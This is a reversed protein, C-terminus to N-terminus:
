VLGSIFERLRDSVYVEIDSFEVIEVISGIYTLALMRVTTAITVYTLYRRFPFKSVGAAMSLADGGAFPVLNTLVLLFVGIRTAFIRDILRGIVGRFIQGRSVVGFAYATAGGLGGAIGTILGLFFWDLSHAMQMVLIIGPSPFIITASSILSIFFAGLYGWGGLEDAYGLFFGGSILVTAVLIGGLAIRARINLVLKRKPEELNDEPLDNM